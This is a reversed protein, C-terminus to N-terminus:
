NMLGFWSLVIIGWGFLSAGILSVTVALAPLGLATLLIEKPNRAMATM